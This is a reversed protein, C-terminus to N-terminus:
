EEYLKVPLDIKEEKWFLYCIIFNSRGVAMGTRKNKIKTKEIVNKLGTSLLYFKGIFPNSSCIRPTPLSREVLQAVVM